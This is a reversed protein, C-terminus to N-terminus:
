EWIAEQIGREFRRDERDLIVVEAPKFSHSSVKSHNYVASVCRVDEGQNIVHDILPRIFNPTELRVTTWTLQLIKNGTNSKFNNSM